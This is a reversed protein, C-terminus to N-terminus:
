QTVPDEFDIDIPDDAAVTEEMFQEFVKIAAVSGEEAYGAGAAMTYVELISNTIHLPFDVQEASRRAFRLDKQSSQVPFNPGFERNLAYPVVVRFMVSSGASNALTDWLTRVDMGQAVGFSLSELALLMNGLAMMNSVLKTTKGTGVEGVHHMERSQAGLVAQVAEDEYVSADGGVPLVMTGNRAFAPGGALFPADLVDLGLDGLDEAYQRMPEPPITSQEICILDEDAGDVIGDDGFYVEEVIEPYNLATLVIDSEEAIEAGSSASRGGHEELEDRPESRIDFGVVDFGEDVLRFAVNKGMSGLGIQGVTTPM